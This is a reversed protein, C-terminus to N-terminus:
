RGRGLEHSVLEATALVLRGCREMNEESMRGSPGSASIAAIPADDRDLIAAGVCRTSTENEGLDVSWGRERIETIQQDLVARDTVTHPTRPELAVGELLEAQQRPSMAALFAKGLSTCYVPRRMGPTSFLRISHESEAKDAYVVEKGDLVALHCTEGTTAALERLHPAAIRRVDLQGLMGEGLEVIRFGLRVSGPQAGDRVYGYTRLAGIIRYVTSRNAGIARSLESVGLGDAPAEALAELLAIARHVTSSGGNSSAM